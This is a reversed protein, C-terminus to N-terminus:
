ASGKLVIDNIEEMKPIYDKYKEYVEIIREQNHLGTMASPQNQIIWTLISREQETMNRLKTM